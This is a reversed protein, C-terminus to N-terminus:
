KKADQLRRINGFLILDVYKNKCLLMTIFLSGFLFVLMYLVLFSISYFTYESLQNVYPTIIRIIYVHVLYLQMSYKGYKSVNIFLKFKTLFVCIYYYMIAGCISGAQHIVFEMNNEFTVFNPKLILITIYGICSIVLLPILIAKKFLHKEVYSVIFGLIFMPILYIMINSSLLGPLSSYAIFYFPIALLAFFLITFCVQAITKFKFKYVIYYALALLTNLIFAVIMYWYFSDTRVVFEKLWYWVNHSVYRSMTTVTLITFLVSPVIYSIAM